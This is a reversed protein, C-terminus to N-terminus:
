CDNCLDKIQNIQKLLKTALEENDAVYAEMYKLVLQQLQDNLQSNSTCNNYNEKM